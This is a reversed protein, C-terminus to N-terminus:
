VFRRAPHEDLEGYPADLERTAGGVGVAAPNGLLRPVEGEVEVLPCLREPKEDVVAVALEATREILHKRSLTHLHNACRDPRRTGVGDALSPDSGHPCLAQVPKEDEGPAVELVDEPNVNVMVVSLSRVTRQLKLCQLLPLELPRQRGNVCPNPSISKAPQQVFVKLRCCSPVSNTCGVFAM